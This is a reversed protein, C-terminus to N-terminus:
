QIEETTEKETEFVIEMAENRVLGMKKIQQDM